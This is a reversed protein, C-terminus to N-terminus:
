SQKTGGHQLPVAGDTGSAKRMPEGADMQVDPTAVPRTMAPRNATADVTADMSEGDAANAASTEDSTTPGAPPNGDNTLTALMGAELETYSPIEISHTLLYAEAALQPRQTLYEVLGTKGALLWRSASLGMCPQVNGREASRLAEEAMTAHLLWVEESTPSRWGNWAVIVRPEGYRWLRAIRENKVADLLDGDIWGDGYHWTEM